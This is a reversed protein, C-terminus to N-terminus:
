ELMKQVKGSRGKRQYTRGHRVVEVDTVSDPDQAEQNESMVNTAESAKYFFVWSSQLWQFTRHSLKRIMVSGCAEQQSPRWTVVINYIRHQGAWDRHVNRGKSAM